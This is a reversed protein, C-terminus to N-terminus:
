SVPARTGSADIRYIKGDELSTTFFQNNKEHYTVNGLGPGSVLGGSLTMAQQGPVVAFVSVASTVRDVKYITGAASLDAAGGGIDGYRHHLPRFAGYLGHAALYINRRADLTIGFVNGLDKANWSSHHFMPANWLPAGSVCGGYDPLTPNRLDVLGFTYAASAPIPLGALDKAPGACTAAAIGPQTLPTGWSPAQALSSTHLVLYCLFAGGLRWATRCPPRVSTKMPIVGHFIM